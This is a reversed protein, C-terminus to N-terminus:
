KLTSPWLSFIARSSVRWKLRYLIIGLKQCCENILKQTIKFVFLCVYMCVYMCISVFSWIVKVLIPLPLFICNIFLIILKFYRLGNKCPFELTFDTVDYAILLALFDENLAGRYTYKLRIPWVFVFTVSWSGQDLATDTSDFHRLTVM